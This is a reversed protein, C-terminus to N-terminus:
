SVAFRGRRVADGLARLDPHLERDDTWRTVVQRVRDHLSQTGAGPKAGEDIRFDLGQAACLLEIAVVDAVLDVVELASSAAVPGMSVHDEHHQVTPISDVSGPHALGKCENVLSAATYQALMLGSNVGSEPLLFSPLGTLRAYTLRFVRREAVSALQTLAIKLHDVALAVPAAHFNGCDIMLDEDPFVIPNDIAANLEREVVGRTHCLADHAAGLVAPACRIAFSDSSRRSSVQDSGDLLRRLTAAVAVPGPHRRASMALPSLCALNARVVEYSMACAAVATDLVVAARDCALAALATTYTSGNILSLAEKETPILVPLGAMAREASVLEGDRWAMGGHRCAVRAVHALAVSGAAGTAGEAPVQPVVGARVMALLTDVVVPRCGSHGTALVNARAVILARVVETEMAEGAGACHGHLFARITAQRDPPSDGAGIWAWKSRVVDADPRDALWRASYEMRARAHSDLQVPEGRVIRCLQAVTLSAGDIPLDVM